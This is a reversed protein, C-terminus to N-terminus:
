CESIGSWDGSLQKVYVYGNNVIYWDTQIGKVATCHLVYM